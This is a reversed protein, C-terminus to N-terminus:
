KAATLDGIQCSQRSSDHKPEKLAFAPAVDAASVEQSIDGVKLTLLHPTLETMAHVISNGEDQERHNNKFPVASRHHFM